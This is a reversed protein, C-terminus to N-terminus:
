QLLNLTQRFLNRVSQIVTLNAQYSRVASMLDAMEAPLTINPYSVYGQADAHPHGPQHRLIPPADDLEVASVRVGELQRSLALSFRTPDGPTPEFIVVRRRYPGGEATRTTEANALNASVVQMRTRQATLGSASIDMIRFLSM